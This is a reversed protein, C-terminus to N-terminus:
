DIEVDCRSCLLVTGREDPYRIAYLNFKGCRGCPREAGIHQGYERILEMTSYLHGYPTPKTM